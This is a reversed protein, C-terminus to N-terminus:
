VRTEMDLSLPLSPSLSISSSAITNRETRRRNDQINCTTHSLCVGIFSSIDFSRLLFGRFSLRVEYPHTFSLGVSLFCSSLSLSVSFCPHSKLVLMFVCFVHRTLVSEQRGRRGTSRRGQSEGQRQKERRGMRKGELPTHSERDAKCSTTEQRQRFCAFSYLFM